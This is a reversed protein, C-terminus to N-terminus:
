GRRCVCDRGRSRPRAALSLNHTISPGEKVGYNQMSSVDSTFDYFREKIRKLIAECPDLFAKNVSEGTKASTEFYLFGQDKAFQQAEATSVTRRPLV